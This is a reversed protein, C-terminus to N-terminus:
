LRSAGPRQALGDILFYGDKVWAENHHRASAYTEVAVRIGRALQVNLYLNANANNFGQGLAILQNQNVTSGTVLRPAATNQHTLNQYQQAFAGGWSLKLGTFAAGAEKPSEFVNVGRQDAYRMYQIQSAPAIYRPLRSASQKTPLTDEVAAASDRAAGAQTVSQQAFAPAAATLAALIFYRSRIM